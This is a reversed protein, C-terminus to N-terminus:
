ETIVKTWENYHSVEENMLNIDDYEYYLYVPREANPNDIFEGPEVMDIRKFVHRMIKEDFMCLTLCGSEKAM